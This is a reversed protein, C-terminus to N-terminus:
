LSLLVRGSILYEKLDSYTRITRVLYYMQSPRLYFRKYAKIVLQYLEDPSLGQVFSFPPVGVTNYKEWENLQPPIHRGPDFLAAGPFPVFLNFSVIAAKLRFAFNMTKQITEITDYPLGIIFSATTKLGVEACIDFSEQVKNLSVKKNTRHLVDYDGSETGFIINSFGTNKLCEALRKDFIDARSFCGFQIKFGQKQISTCLDHTRDPDLTFTDDQFFIYKIGHRSVLVEIEDLISNFGRTRYTRGDVLHSACFTCKFPCGRSTLMTASKGGAIHRHTSFRSIDLLERDPFPLTDLSSLLKRPPNCIALGQKKWILGNINGYDANDLSHALEVLTEEGEGYVVFDIEPHQDLVDSKFYSVHHGGIVIPIDAHNKVMSAIAVARPFNPTMATLGILDPRFSDVEALITKHIASLDAAVSLRVDHGNYRLVSALYGLGLPFYAKAMNSFNRYLDLYPPEILLIRKKM